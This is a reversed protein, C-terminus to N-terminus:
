GGCDCAAAPAEGHAAAGTYVGASAPLFHLPYVVQAAAASGSAFALQGLSHDLCQELPTAPSGTVSARGDAAVEFALEVTRSETPAAEAGCRRFEAFHAAMARGIESAKRPGTVRLGTHLVRLEGSANAPAPAVDIGKAVGGPTGQRGLGKEGSQDHRQDGWMRGLANQEDTGLAVERGFRAAPAPVKEGQGPRALHPEANDRPGAVGYSGTGVAVLDTGMEADGCRAEGTIRLLRPLAEVARAFVAEHQRRAESDQPVAPAPMATVARPLSRRSAIQSAPPLVLLLGGTLALGCALWSSLSQLSIASPM